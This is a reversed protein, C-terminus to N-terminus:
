VGFALRCRIMALAAVQPFKSRRKQPFNTRCQCITLGLLEQTTPDLWHADEHALLVPRDGALGELQEVLAELTLQKQRQPTLDLVPYRGQTPLGILAAILPMVQDVRDTGRVLLAELKDLRTQPLDDRAFGAARELQGILPHLPSTTHYPSCQYLLRLHPEDDLRAQVERVLRSKGIGPEGALLVMQGEGEKAREWRELLLGIEHERGVLPTLGAKHLAEFRSELTGQGVVRWAQVPVPFGKLQHTGLDALDFLAGILQRTREAIV